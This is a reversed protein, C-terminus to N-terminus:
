WGRERRIAASAELAREGERECDLYLQAADAIRESGADWALSLSWPDPALGVRLLARGARTREPVLLEVWEDLDAPDIWVLVDAPEVARAIREAGALGGLAWTLRPAQRAARSWADITEGVSGTGVDWTLQRLRRQRWSEAWADLLAGPDRARVRRVRSDKPEPAVDVLTRNSLAGVVQSAFPRSLETATALEGVSPSRGPRLLLWRAVRSARRSFPSVAQPDDLAGAARRPSRGPGPRDVLLTPTVLFLEGAESAYSVGKERLLQRAEPSAREFVVLLPLSAARARELVQATVLDATLRSARAVEFREVTGTTRRRATAHDPGIELDLERDLAPPPLANPLM